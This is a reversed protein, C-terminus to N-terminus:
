LKSNINKLHEVLDFNTNQKLQNVNPMQNVRLLESAAAAFPDRQWTFVAEVVDGCCYYAVLKHESISGHIIVQDFRESHGVYRISNGFQM